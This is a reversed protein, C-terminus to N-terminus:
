RNRLRPNLADNLGEGVLNIALVTVLIAIGPIATLYWATRLMSRGAGIMTGWTMTNPDGLGLFSLGAETLIATAVMVSAMVIIPALANPLIQRFIIRADGMGMAISAQVFERGRLAMFQGRVLRAVAPWSVTAIALVITHISPKFIAVIVITFVFFPMTQFIETLRMLADDIWGGYYGALAGVTVGAVVAVLTAVVGILLSVRAGHFIGAAVDRGLSDSGLLFAPNEGPWQLPRTVIRWADGPYLFPGALAVLLVLVLLGLGLVASHNRRYCRWFQRLAEIM